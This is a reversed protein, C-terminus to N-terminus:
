GFIKSMIFNRLTVSLSIASMLIGCLLIGGRLIGSLLTCSLFLTYFSHRLASSSVKKGVTTKSLLVRM